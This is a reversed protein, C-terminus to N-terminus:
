TSTQPVLRVMYEGRSAFGERNRRWRDRAVEVKERFVKFYRPAAALLKQFPHLALRGSAFVVGLDKRVEIFVDVLLHGESSNFGKEVMTDFINKAITLKEEESLHIIPDVYVKGRKEVTAKKAAKGKSAKSRAVEKQPLTKRVEQLAENLQLGSPSLTPTPTVERPARTRISAASAQGNQKNSSKPCPVEKQLVEKM